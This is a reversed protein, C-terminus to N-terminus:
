ARAVVRRTHRRELRKRPARLSETLPKLRGGVGCRFKRHCFHRDQGRAIPDLDIDRDLLAPSTFGSAKYGVFHERGICRGGRANRILETPRVRDPMERADGRPEVGDDHALMLNGALNLPGEILWQTYVTLLAHQAMDSADRPRRAPAHPRFSRETTMRRAQSGDREIEGLVLESTELTSEVEAEKREVGHSKRIRLAEFM